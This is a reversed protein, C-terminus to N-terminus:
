ALRWFVWPRADERVVLGRQALLPLVTRLRRPTYGAVRAVDAVQAPGLRELAVLACAAANVPRRM